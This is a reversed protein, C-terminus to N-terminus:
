TPGSVQDTFSPSSGAESGKQLARAVLQDLKSRIELAIILAPELGGDLEVVLAARFFPTHHKTTANALLLVCPHM